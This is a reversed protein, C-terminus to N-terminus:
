VWRALGHRVTVMWNIELAPRFTNKFQVVSPTNAGCWDYDFPGRAAALYDTLALHLLTPAGAAADGEASGGLLYYVRGEDWGVIAAAVPDGGPARVVAIAGGLGDATAPGILWGALRRIAADSTWAPIRHRERTATVLDVAADLGEPGIELQAGAERARRALRRAANEAGAELAGPAAIPSVYNYHPAVRGGGWIMPRLDCEAAPFIMDASAEDERLRAAIAELCGRHFRAGAAAQEGAMLGAWPAPSPHCLRMGLRVRRRDFVVGAVPRGDRGLVMLRRPEAAVLALYDWHHVLRRASRKWLAQWTGQDEAVAWRTTFEAM